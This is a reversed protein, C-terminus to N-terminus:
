PLYSSRRQYIRVQIKVEGGYEALCQAGATASSLLALTSIFAFSGNKFLNGPDFVYSFDTKPLGFAVFMALGGILILTIVKNFNAATKTGVLNTLFIYNTYSYSNYTSGM